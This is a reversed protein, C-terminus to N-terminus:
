DAATKRAEAAAVASLVQPMAGEAAKRACEDTGSSILSYLRDIDVCAARAADRVRTELVKANSPISLDLDTYEVYYQVSARVIPMGSSSRGVVRATPRDARVTVEGAVQTDAAIAAAAFIASLAILAGQRM